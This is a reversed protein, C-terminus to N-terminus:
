IAFKANFLAYQGFQYFYLFNKMIKANLNIIYEDFFFCFFFYIIIFKANKNIKREKFNM